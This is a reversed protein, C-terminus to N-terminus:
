KFKVTIDDLWLRLSAKNRAIKKLDESLGELFSERGEGELRKSAEELMTNEAGQRVGTDCSALMVYLLTAMLQQLSNSSEAIERLQMAVQQTSDGTDQSLFLNLLKERSQMGDWAASREGGEMCGLCAEALQLEGAHAAICETGSARYADLLATLHAPTIRGLRQPLPSKLGICVYTIVM